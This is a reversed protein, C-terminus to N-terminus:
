DAQRMSAVVPVWFSRKLYGIFREVKGKAQHRGSAERGPSDIFGFVAENHLVLVPLRERAHQSCSAPRRVAVAISV